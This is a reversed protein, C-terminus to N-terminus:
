RDSLSLENETQLVMHLEDLNINAPVQFRRWIPPRMNELTVKIQYVSTSAMLVDKQQDCNSRHGITEAAIGESLGFPLQWAPLASNTFPPAEISCLPLTPQPSQM